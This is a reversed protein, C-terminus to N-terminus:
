FFTSTVMQFVRRILTTGTPLICNFYFEVRVCACVTPVRFTNVVFNLTYIKFHIGNQTARDNSRSM